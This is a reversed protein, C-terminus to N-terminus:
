YGVIQETLFMESINMLVKLIRHNRSQEKTEFANVVFIHETIDIKQRFSDLIHFKWCFSNQAFRFFFFFIVAFKWYFFKLRGIKVPDTLYPSVFKNKIKAESMITYVFYTIKSLIDYQNTVDYKNNNRRYNCYCWGKITQKNKLMQVM